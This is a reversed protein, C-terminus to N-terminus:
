RIVDGVIAGPATAAVGAARGRARTRQRQKMAARDPTNFDVHQAPRADAIRRMVVIAITSICGGSVFVVKCILFSVSAMASARSHAAFPMYMVAGFGRTPPTM